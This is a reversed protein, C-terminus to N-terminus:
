GCRSLDQSTLHRSSVLCVKNADLANQFEPSTVVDFDRQRWAAGWTPHDATIARLEPDDYGLHVTLQSLGPKLNSIVSVYYSRWDQPQIREDAMIFTDLNTRTWHSDAASLPLFPPRKVLVPLGYDSASRTLASFLEPTRLLTGMHTDVHSPRLGANIAFDIQARIEAEVEESNAGGVSSSDSMFYGHIDLLTPVRGRSIIPGWRFYKWESTLTLHLGLDVEPHCKAYAVVEFFWPCPVMVSASSVSNNVFAAFTAQNVSHAMGLDDAHIILLKAEM